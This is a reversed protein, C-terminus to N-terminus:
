YVNFIQPISPLARKHSSNGIMSDIKKRIDGDAEGTLIYRDLEEYTLGIQVEDTQGPWLGASPPKDIIVEPIKLYAAVERVQSKVLNGIPLLDVGGDGYKTFYGVSLESRNGTGVVLYNLRNAFYYLTIMRLRPKINAEALMKTSSNYGRSPLGGVLIDFVDDLVVTECDINFRKAVLEAHQRDVEDSHCPMIVLLTYTPFARQCLVAAVASDLGGSMGVVVGSAGAASVTERIWAILRHALAEVSL